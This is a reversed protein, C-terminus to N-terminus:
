SPPRDSSTSGRSTSSQARAAAPAGSGGPAASAGEGWRATIRHLSVRSPGSSTQSMHLVLRASLIRSAAPIRGELDFGIAGRRIAGQSNRGAFVYPGSGSATAGAADEFLTADRSGEIWVTEAAPASGASAFALLWCLVPRRIMTQM